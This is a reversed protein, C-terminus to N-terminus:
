ILRYDSQNQDDGGIEDNAFDAFFVRKELPSVSKFEILAFIVGFSLLNFGNEKELNNIWRKNIMTVKHMITGKINTTEIDNVSSVEM